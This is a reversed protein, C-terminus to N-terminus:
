IIRSTNFAVYVAISQYLLMLITNLSGSILTLIIHFHIAINFIFFIPYGFAIVNSVSVAIFGLIGGLISFKLQVGRGLKQIVMGVAYGAAITVVSFDFGVTSAIILRLYGTVIGIVFAALTGLVIATNFRQKQTLRHTNFIEM